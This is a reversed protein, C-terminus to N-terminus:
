KYVKKVVASDTSNRYFVRVKKISRNVFIAQPTFTGDRTYKDIYFTAASNVGRYSHHRKYGPRLKYTKGKFKYVMSDTKDTNSIAISYNKYRFGDRNHTPTRRNDYTPNTKDIIRHDHPCGETWNGFGLNVKCKTHAAAPLSVGALLLLAILAKKM